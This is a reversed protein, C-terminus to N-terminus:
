VVSKRDGRPGESRSRERGREEAELELMSGALPAGEWDPGGSPKPSLGLLDQPAGSSVVHGKHLLVREPPRSLSYPDSHWPQNEWSLVPPSLTAGPAPPSLNPTPPFPEAGVVGLCRPLQGAGFGPGAQPFSSPPPLLFLDWSLSLSFSLLRPM